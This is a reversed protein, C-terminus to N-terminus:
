GVQGATCAASIAKCFSRALLSAFRHAAPDAATGLELAIEANLFKPLGPGFYDM